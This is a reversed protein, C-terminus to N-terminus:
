RCVIVPLGVQTGVLARLAIVPEGMADFAIATIKEGLYTYGTLVPPSWQSGAAALRRLSTKGSGSVGGALVVALDGSPSRQATFNPGVGLDVPATWGAGLDRAAWVHGARSYIVSLRDSGDIFPRINGAGPGPDVVVSADFLGTAPHYRMSSVKGATVSVVIVEGNTAVMPLQEGLSVANALSKPTAWATGDFTAVYLPLDAAFPDTWTAAAKGNGNTGLAPQRFNGALLPQPAAWTGPVPSYRSVRPVTGGSLFMAGGTTFGGLGGISGGAGTLEAFAGFVSTSPDLVGVGVTASGEWAIYGRGEGDAAIATFGNGFPAPPSLTQEVLLQAGDFVRVKVHQAFAATTEEWTFAYKGQAFTAGAIEGIVDGATDLRFLLTCAGADTGGDAGADAASGADPGADIGGDIGADAVLGADPGADSGGDSGGDSGAGPGADNGPGGDLAGGDAPDPDGCNCGVLCSSGLAVLFAVVHQRSRM